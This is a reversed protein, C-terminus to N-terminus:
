RPTVATGTLDHLRSAFADGAIVWPHGDRGDIAGAAVWGAVEVLARVCVVGQHWALSGPDVRSGTAREYARVFRRSLARGAASVVPRLPRPVVLPPSALVLSTFGLDYTGPALMAASWDLVTAQGQDDVLMNFPHMDGHCVVVAEDVPRNAQLWTAVGALDARGLADATTRLSELMTDLDPRAVGAADLGLEIPAPDLRHLAALVGALTGPLQRALKPLKALAGIGDLGALLPQGEALTMVMFARGVVGEAPGGSALVRPTAYNQDAVAAQFVTEKAATAPDPMVRAVLPGTWGAPPDILRFTVLEAWFGGTLPVPDGDYALGPDGTVRRLM